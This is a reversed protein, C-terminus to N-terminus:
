LRAGTERKAQERLQNKLIKGSANKPISDVFKIGGDLNKYKSLKESSFKRVEEETVTSGSRRVVYARPLESEEKSFQIGVVAADVIEPHHLLVAELEAPAVQFGRVKILEQLDV